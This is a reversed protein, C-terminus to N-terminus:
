AAERLTRNIWGLLFKSQSRDHLVIDRYRAIKALAYALKFAQGDIANLAALTKPGLAGDAAVGAVIQALKIATRCGANVSFDFLSGAISQNTIQDGAVPEWFEVRYFGRVLDTPPTEHRDVYAWGPWNTHMRRSIGAYTQGGHDGPIDTLKFGGENAMMRDFAPAFDAM